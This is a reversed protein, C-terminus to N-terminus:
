ITRFFHSSLGSEITIIDHNYILDVKNQKNEEKRSAPSTISSLSFHRDEYLINKRIKQVNHSHPAAIYAEWGTFINGFDRTEELYSTELEYIQREIQV